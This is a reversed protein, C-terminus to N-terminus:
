EILAHNGTGRRELLICDSQCEGSERRSREDACRFWKVMRGADELQLHVAEASQRVNVTPFAFEDRALPVHEFRECRQGGFECASRYIRGADERTAPTAQLDIVHIGQGM